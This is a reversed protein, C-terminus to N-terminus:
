ALWLGRTATRWIGPGQATRGGVNGHTGKETRNRRSKGGSERDGLGDAEAERSGFV